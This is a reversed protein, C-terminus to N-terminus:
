DPGLLIDEFGTPFRQHSGGPKPTKRKVRKVVAQCIPCLYPLDVYLEERHFQSHCEECQFVTKKRGM